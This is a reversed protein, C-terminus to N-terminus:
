AVLHLCSMKAYQWTYAEHQNNRVEEADVRSLHGANQSKEKQYRVPNRQVDPQKEPLKQM